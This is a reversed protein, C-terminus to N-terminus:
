TTYRNLTKRLRDYASPSIFHTANLEIAAEATDILALLDAKAIVTQTESIPSEERCRHYRLQSLDIPELV